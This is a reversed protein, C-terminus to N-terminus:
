RAHHAKEDNPETSDHRAKQLAERFDMPADDLLTFYGDQTNLMLEVTLRFRSNQANLNTFDANFRVSGHIEGQGAALQQIKRFRTLSDKDLRLTHCRLTRAESFWGGKRTVTSESKEVLSLVGTANGKPTDLDFLLHTNALDLGIDPPLYARVRLVTPDLRAFDQDGFSRMRWM